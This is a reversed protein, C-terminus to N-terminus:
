DQLLKVVDDALMKPLPPLSELRFKPEVDKLSVLTAGAQTFWVRQFKAICGYNLETNLACRLSRFADLHTKENRQLRVALGRVSMAMHATIDKGADLELQAWSISPNKAQSQAAREQISRASETALSALSVLDRFCMQAEGILEFVQANGNREFLFGIGKLDVEQTSFSMHTPRLLAWLPEDGVLGYRAVDDRFGKRYLLFDNYQQKLALLALNSAVVRDRYRRGSDLLRASFFAFATGIFPGLILTLWNISILSEPVTLM